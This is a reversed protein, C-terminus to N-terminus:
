ELSLSILFNKLEEGEIKKYQNTKLDGLKINMVRVRKLSEIKISLNDCMRRIQHKQGETLTISFSNDDLLKTKCPKTEIGELEMGGEMISLQFQKIPKSTKVVYEKDHEYRPSLLRDTIRGDNTLIILGESDKDLRGVPFVGKLNISSSIDKEGKQPSHTIIGRPKNYAYYSYNTKTKNKVEVKDTERVKDGLVAKRDNIFVKGSEIIKDAERRTCVGKDALYKNIRIEKKEEM